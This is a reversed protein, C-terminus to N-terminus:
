KKSQNNFYPHDMLKIANDEQTMQIYRMFAKETKHGTIKMISIAPIGALYMNTAGSRRATHTTILEYKACTRTVRIGGEFKTISVPDNIGAKEGIKKLYDNTKQNSINELLFNNKEIIEKVIWHLPIVVNIGTKKTSIKIFTGQDNKYINERTINSYDSYRLCTYAGILFLDRAKEYSKTKSLDLAYMIKLESETLYIKDVEESLTAFKSSRFKQNQNIGDETAANLVTKLTSIHKGVTNEAMKIQLEEGPKIMLKKTSCNRLYEVFDQYFELDIDEFILIRKKIASFDKLHRLTTEYRQKTRYSVEYPKGKKYIYKLNDIYKRFYSDLTNSAQTKIIATKKIRKTRNDPFLDERKNLEQRLLDFTIEIRDNVLKRYIDSIATEINKLRQNLEASDPYAPKDIGRHLKTSWNEPSWKMGTSYKFQKYDKKGTENVQYHNFRFILYILSPENKNPEKLVFTTSSPM